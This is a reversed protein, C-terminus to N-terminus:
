KAAAPPVASRMGEAIQQPSLDRQHTAVSWQHGYPDLLVGYRDGWFMDAVPMVLTAGAAVARAVVADVDEVFLHVTVSTGKLAKPGFSGWDPFEDVVMLMSNGIRLQANMIKGGPGELRSLEVAGFAKALFAIADSAGAYVLHPTLTHFGDPIPKAQAM